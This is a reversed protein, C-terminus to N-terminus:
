KLTAPLSIKPNAKLAALGTPWVTALDGLAISGTAKALAAAEDDSLEKIGGLGLKARTAPLRRQRGGNSLLTLGPLNGDAPRKADIM